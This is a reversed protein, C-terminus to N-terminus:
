APRDGRAVQDRNEPPPHGIHWEDCWPCHYPEMGEYAPETPHAWVLATAANRAVQESSYPTKHGCQVSRAFLISDGGQRRPQQARRRRKSELGM